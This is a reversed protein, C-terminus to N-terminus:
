LDNKHVYGIQRRIEDMQSMVRASEALPYEPMDTMGARLARCVAEIEYGYDRGADPDRIETVSGDAGIIRASGPHWFPTDIEIRGREGAIRASGSLQTCIATGLDAFGDGYDLHLSTMADVGAPTMVARASLATHPLPAFALNALMLPYIGMDLMAGGGTEAKTLRHDPAVTKGMEASVYRVRGIMGAALAERIQRTVPFYATWMAEAFFLHKEEAIERLLALERSNMTIPKECLVHHGASLAARCCVAHQAQPTAIYLIDLDRRAILAEYSGVPEAGAFEAAFASAKEPSRSACAVLRAGETRVLCRCFKAAMKGCGIVGFRIDNM